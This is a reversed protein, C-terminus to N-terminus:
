YQNLKNRHKRGIIFYLISGLFPILLVVLVWALKKNRGRFRWLLVDILALIALLSSITWFILGFSPTVLEMNDFILQNSNSFSSRLTAVSTEALNLQRYRLYCFGDREIVAEPFNIL